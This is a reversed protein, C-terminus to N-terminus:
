RYFPISGSVESRQCDQLSAGSRYVASSRTQLNCFSPWFWHNVCQSRMRELITVVHSPDGMNRLWNEKYKNRVYEFLKQKLVQRTEWIENDSVQYIKEWHKVNSQDSMWNPGFTKLYLKQWESATWTPMHVGNTVYNVHLEEPAYGKWIPNFMEQSVKGHLWSIGNVEQCCNCAFVSMSFKEHTGPNERGIDVFDNWSIGLKSPFASMYKAFLDEDFQDHGAPVPTHVTYLGTARVM